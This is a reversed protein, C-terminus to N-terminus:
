EARVTVITPGAQHHALNKAAQATERERRSKPAEYCNASFGQKIVSLFYRDGYRRFDLQAKEITAQGQSPRTLLLVSQASQENRFIMVNNAGARSVTYTGAPLTQNGVNFDFPIKATLLNTPAVAVAVAALAVACVLALTLNLATRKM